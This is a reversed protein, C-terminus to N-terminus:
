CIPVIENEEIVELNIPNIQIEKRQSESYALVYFEDVVSTIKLRGLSNYTNKNIPKYYCDYRINQIHKNM